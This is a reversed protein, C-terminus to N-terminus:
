LLVAVYRYPSGQSSTAWSTPPTKFTPLRVTCSTPPVVKSRRIISGTWPCMYETSQVRVEPRKYYNKIKTAMGTAMILPPHEEAYEALIVHGDCATLDKPTRMFFM